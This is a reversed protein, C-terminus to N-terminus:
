ANSAWQTRFHGRALGVGAAACVWATRPVLRFRNGLDYFAGDFATGCSCLRNAKSGRGPAHM